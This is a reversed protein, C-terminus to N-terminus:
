NKWSYFTSFSFLAFFFYRLLTINIPLGIFYGWSENYNILCEAFECAALIFAANFFLKTKTVLAMPVSCYLVQSGYQGILWYYTSESIPQDSLPFPHWDYPCPSYNRCLTDPDIPILIWLDRVIYATVCLLVLVREDKM